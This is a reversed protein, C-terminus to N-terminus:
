WLDSVDEDSLRLFTLACDFVDNVLVKWTVVGYSDNMSMLQRDTDSDPRARFKECVDLDTWAVPATMFTWSSAQSAMINTIKTYNDIVKTSLPSRLREEPVFCVIGLNFLNCVERKYTLYMPEVTMCSVVTWPEFVTSSLDIPTKFGSTM